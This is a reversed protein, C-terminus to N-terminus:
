YMSRKLGGDVSDMELVYQTEVREKLGDKEHMAMLGSARRRARDMAIVRQTFATTSACCIPAAWGEWGWVMM